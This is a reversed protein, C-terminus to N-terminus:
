EDYGDADRHAAPIQFTGDLRAVMEDYRREAQRLASIQEADDLEGRRHREAILVRQRELWQEPDFNYTM